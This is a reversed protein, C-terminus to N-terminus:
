SPAMSLLAANFVGIVPGILRGLLGPALYVLAMLGFIGVM